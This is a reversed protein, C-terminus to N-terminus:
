LMRVHLLQRSFVDNGGYLVALGPSNTLAAMGGWTRPTICRPLERWSRTADNFFWTDDTPCPGGGTGGRILSPFPPFTSHVTPFLFLHFPPFSFLCSVSLHFFLACFNLVKDILAARVWLNHISDHVQLNITCFPIM